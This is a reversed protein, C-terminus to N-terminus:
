LGSSRLSPTQEYEGSACASFWTVTQACSALVAESCGMARADSCYGHVAMAKEGSRSVCVSAPGVAPAAFVPGADRSSTAVLLSHRRIHSREGSCTLRRPDDADDPSCM